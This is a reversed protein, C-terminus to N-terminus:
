ILNAAINQLTLGVILFGVQYRSKGDTVLDTCCVLSDLVLVQTVDDYLTMRNVKEDKGPRLHAQIVSALLNVNILVMLQYIPDVQWYVSVLALILRRSFYSM